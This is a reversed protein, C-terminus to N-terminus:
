EDDAVPISLQEFFQEINQLEAVVIDDEDPEPEEDDEPDKELDDDTDMSNEISARGIRTGLSTIGNYCPLKYIEAIRARHRRNVRVRRDCIDRLETALLIDTKELRTIHRKLDLEEDRISTAVRRVEINL